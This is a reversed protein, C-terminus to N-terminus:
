SRDQRDALTEEGHGVGEGEVLGPPDGHGGLAQGGRGARGPGARGGQPGGQFPEPGDLDVGDVHDGAAVLQDKLGAGAGVVPGGEVPEDVAAPGAELVPAM